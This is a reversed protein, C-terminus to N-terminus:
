TGDHLMGHGFADAGGKLRSSVANRIFSFFVVLAITTGLILLASEVMTSGSKGRSCTPRSRMWM